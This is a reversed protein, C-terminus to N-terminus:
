QGLLDTLEKLYYEKNLDIREKLEASFSCAKEFWELVQSGKLTLANKDKLWNALNDALDGIEGIKVPLDAALVTVWQAISVELENHLYDSYYCGEKYYVLVARLTNQVDKRTLISNKYNDSIYQMALSAAIRADDVDKAQIIKIMRYVPELLRAEANIGNPM